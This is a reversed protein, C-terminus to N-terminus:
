SLKPSVYHLNKVKNKWGHTNVETKYKANQMKISCTSSFCLKIKAPSMQICLIPDLCMFVSIFGCKKM